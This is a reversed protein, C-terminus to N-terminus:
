VKIWLKIFQGTALLLFLIGLVRNINWRQMRQIIREKFRLTFYAVGVLLILAGFATGTVFAAQESTTEVRLPKYSEYQVLIVLWYPLLQPNLLGLILGKLFSHTPQDTNELEISKNPTFFIVIGIVILFPVASWELITWIKQHTRLWIGARVAATAYIIEPLSGGLAAWLGAHLNRRLVSQIVTLNSPGLQLSGAFSIAATVIFVIFPKYLEGM